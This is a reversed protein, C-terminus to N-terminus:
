WESHDGLKNNPFESVYYGFTQVPERHLSSDWGIKTGMGDHM